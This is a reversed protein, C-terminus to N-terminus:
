AATCRAADHWPGTMLLGLQEIDAGASDVIGTIRGDYIVAVRDAIALIEDLDESILLM